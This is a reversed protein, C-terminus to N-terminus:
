HHVSSNLYFIKLKLFQSTFSTKKKTELAISAAVASDTKSYSDGELTLSEAAVCGAHPIKPGQYTCSKCSQHARSGFSIMFKVHVM